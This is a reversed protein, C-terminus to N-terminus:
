WFSHLAPALTLFQPNPFLNSGSWGTIHSLSAHPGPILHAQNKNIKIIKPAHGVGVDEKGKLISSEKKGSRQFKLEKITPTTPPTGWILDTPGDCLLYFPVPSSFLDSEISDFRSIV